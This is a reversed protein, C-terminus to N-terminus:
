ASAAALHRAVALVKEVPIDKLEPAQLVTVHGRPASLAPDSASSFLTITPAGTAAILHMPGTDNGVAVVARAGLLAIQALDTRGTLNRARPAHRQIEHALDSEQFGGLIVVDFGETQLAAALKGYAAAPWRKEPRHAAAGPALLVVPRATAQRPASARKLIWSLDPPAASLPRTPADPWIGAAQLQEAQRELAHMTMRAPNAHPLACSRATGSWKPPFPRLFQFLLRTRDSNQLDYVRDYGALRLRWALSLWAWLGRPRGDTEVADFYPSSRALAEFPPTTLLTITADPHAARIREFAPFALVFDGLASLKIVLVRRVPKM